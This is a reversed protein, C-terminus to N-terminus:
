FEFCCYLSNRLIHQNQPGWATKSILDDVILRLFMCCEYTEFEMQYDSLWQRTSQIWLRAACIKQINVHHSTCVICLLDLTATYQYRAMLEFCTVSTEHIPIMCTSLWFHQSPLSSDCREFELSKKSVQFKLPTLLYGGCVRRPRFRQRGEVPTHILGLHLAEKQYRKQHLHGTM